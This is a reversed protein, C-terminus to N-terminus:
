SPRLPVPSAKLKARGDEIVVRFRVEQCGYRRQIAERQREVIEQLREPTLGKVQEGCRRRATVYAEFLDDKDTPAPAPSTAASPAVDRTRANLRARFVHREYTGEEIQRLAQDWRRKFAFFRACLNNFRFRLMSNQIPQNSYLAVLKQVESRLV